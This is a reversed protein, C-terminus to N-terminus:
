RATTHDRGVAATQSRSELATAAAPNSDIGIGKVPEVIGDLYRGMTAYVRRYVTAGSSGQINNLGATDAFQPDVRMTCSVALPGGKTLGRIAHHRDALKHNGATRGGGRIMINSNRSFGDTKFISPQQGM